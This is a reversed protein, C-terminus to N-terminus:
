LYKLVQEVVCDLEHAILFRRADLDPRLAVIALDVTEHAVVADADGGIVMLPNEVQEIAEIGADIAGADAQRQYLADDFNVPAPDPDLRAALTM